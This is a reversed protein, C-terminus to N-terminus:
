EKGKRSALRIKQMGVENAADIVSIVNRHRAATHATLLLESKQEKRMKDRLIDPLQTADALLEDDILVSNDAEIRVLISTGQFDDLKQLQQTAGKQDPDPTPVQITKQLAFSATVMFFILLQFTVDVMPTLDMEDEIRSRKRLVFPTAEIPEEESAEPSEFSQEHGRYELSSDHSSDSETEVLELRPSVFSSRDEVVFGQTVDVNPAVRHENKSRSPAPVPEIRREPPPAPPLSPVPPTLPQPVIPAISLSKEDPVITLEGCTPCTVTAGAKRSSISMLGSCSRCRFQIAM